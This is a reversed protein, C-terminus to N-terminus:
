FGCGIGDCIGYLSLCPNHDCRPNLPTDTSQCVVVRAVGRRLLASVDTNEALGGDGILRYM